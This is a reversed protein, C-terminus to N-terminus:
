VTASLRYSRERLHYWNYCTRCSRIHDFIKRQVDIHAAWQEHIM